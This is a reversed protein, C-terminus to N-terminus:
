ALGISEEGAGELIRVQRGEVRLRGECFLRIAEPYLRYEVGHIREHLSAVDDGPLVPVAEQLIIPGTDLGEDVFHVTVGSVKVGYALADAVGSTGPFSPLLAPHINMIRNRFAEVFEPSVLRMYGALVVLDVGNERLIRVLERDFSVRDPFSGPDLFVAQLGHRRARVLGYADGRDSIVVVIRARLYGEEIKAAINELNTGSGSILVGLRCFRAERREGADEGKAM